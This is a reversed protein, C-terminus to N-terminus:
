LIPSWSAGTEHHTGTSLPTEGSGDVGIRYLHLVHGESRQFVLQRGDPSWRAMQDGEVPTTLRRVNSGDSGAVFIALIGNDFAHYAIRTGDPSWAPYRGNVGLSTLGTGDANIVFLVGDRSFLLRTGDPSWAPGDDYSYGATEPTLQRLGSGDRNVVFVRGYPGFQSPLVSRFALQRGDPAWAPAGDFTSRGVIKTRSKGFRDLLYIGSWSGGVRSAAAIWQGDPSVVPFAYVQQDSTLRERRSGDSRMVMVEAYGFQESTYVIANGLYRSCSARVDVRTAAGASITALTPAGVVDCNFAVDSIALSHTGPGVILRSVGNAPIAQGPGGDVALRFGAADDGTTVVNVELTGTTPATSDKCAAAAALLIVATWRRPQHSM